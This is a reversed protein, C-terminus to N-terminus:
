LGIGIRFGCLFYFIQTFKPIPSRQPTSYFKLPSIIAKKYHASVRQRFIWNMYILMTSSHLVHLSHSQPELIAKVLSTHCWCQDKLKVSEAHYVKEGVWDNRRQARHIWPLQLCLIPSQIFSWKDHSITKCLAKSSVM